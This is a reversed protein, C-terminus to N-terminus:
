TSAYFPNINTHHVRYTSTLIIYEKPQHYKRQHPSFLDVSRKSKTTNLLKFYKFNSQVVRQNFDTLGERRRGETERETNIKRIRERDRQGETEKDRHRERETAKKSNQKTEIREVQRATVM